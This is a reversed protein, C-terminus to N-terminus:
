FHSKSYPYTQKEQLDSEIVSSMKDKSKIEFLESILEIIITAM